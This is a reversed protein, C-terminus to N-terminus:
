FFKLFVKVKIFLSLSETRITIRLTGRGSNLTNPELPNVEVGWMRMCLTTSLCLSLKGKVKEIKVEM